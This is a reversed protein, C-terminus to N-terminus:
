ERDGDPCHPGNKIRRPCECVAALAMDQIPDATLM